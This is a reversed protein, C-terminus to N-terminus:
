GPLWLVMCIHHTQPQGQPGAALGNHTHTHTHPKAPPCRAGCLGPSPSSSSSSSSSGTSAAASSGTAHHRTHLHAQQHQETGRMSSPHGGFPALPPTLLWAPPSPHHSPPYLPLSPGLLCRSCTLASCPLSAVAAAAVAWAVAM